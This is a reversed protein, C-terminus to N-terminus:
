NLLLKSVVIALGDVCIIDVILSVIDYVQYHCKCLLEVCFQAQTHVAHISASATETLERSRSFANVQLNVTTWSFYDNGEQMMM